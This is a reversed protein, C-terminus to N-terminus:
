KDKIIEETLKSLPVCENNDIEKDAIILRDNFEKESMLDANVSKPLGIFFPIGNTYIIQHYLANIVVSVPIGLKNLIEEAQVKIEPEVRAIVNATKVAM